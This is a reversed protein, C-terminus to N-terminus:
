IIKKNIAIYRDGKKYRLKMTVNYRIIDINIISDKKTLGLNILQAFAQFVRKFAYQM